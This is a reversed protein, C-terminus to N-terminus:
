RGTNVYQICDGQNKFASGDARFVSKWGGNKCDNKSAAVRLDVKFNDFAADLYFRYVIMDISIRVTQGAFASVDASFHTMPISPSVGQVTRFLTAVIADTSVDRIDVVIEQGDPVFDGNHNNYEMDWSITSAGAPLAIDQFMRHMQGGNQLQLALFNGDTATYTHPLGPSTQPVDIGDFFDFILQGPNITEGNTAIGWTGFAPENPVGEFLTWGSYNGTEFSGNTFQSVSLAARAASRSRSSATRTAGSPVAGWKGGQSPKALSPNPSPQTPQDVCGIQIAAILLLSTVNASGRMNLEKFPIRHLSIVPVRARACLFPFVALRLALLCLRHARIAHM